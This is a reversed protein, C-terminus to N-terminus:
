CGHDPCHRTCAVPSTLEHEYGPHSRTKMRVQQLGTVWETMETAGIGMNAGTAALLFDPQDLILLMEDGDTMSSKQREIESITDKEMADLAAIGHGTFYLKKAVNSDRQRPSEAGSREGTVALPPARGPVTDPHSRLPLPTRVASGPKMSATSVPSPKNFLESLGDVFTFQQKDALRALDLGQHAILIM